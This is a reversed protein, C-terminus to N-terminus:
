PLLTAQRDDQYGVIETDYILRGILNQAEAFVSGAQSWRLFYQCWLHQFGQVRCRRLVVLMLMIVQGDLRVWTALSSGCRLINRAGPKAIRPQRPGLPSNRM